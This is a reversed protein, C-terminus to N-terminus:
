FGIKNLCYILGIASIFICIATIAGGILGGLICNIVDSHNDVFTKIKDPNQRNWCWVYSYGIICTPIVVIVYVFWPIGAFFSGVVTLIFSTLTIFENWMSVLNDWISVIGFVIGVIIALIIGVVTGWKLLKVSTSISKKITCKIINSM